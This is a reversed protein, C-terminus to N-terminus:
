PLIRQSPNNPRVQNGIKTIIETPTIIKTETGNLYLTYIEGLKISESAINIHRFTKISKHEFVINGSSDKLEILTGVPKAKELYISMGPVKSNNSLEKVMGSSGIAIIRGGNIIIERDADLAGNNDSTPGNIVIDGGNIYVWGNSDIGDGASDITVKGNNITLTGSSTNVGSEINIGDDTSTIDILGGNMTISESEMGEHSKTITIDGDDIVIEKNAHIADDFTSINYIGGSIGIFSDSHIADDISNISYSGGNLLVNKFAKIGKNQTTINFSGDKILVFGKNFEAENTSKIGDAGANIIFSGDLIYVSDKGRIGDDQSTIDFSGSKVKLDDKSVIGDQYNAIITLSGEGGFTTDSKSYIVGTVDSDFEESYSVGDELINNGITEIVLDNASKCIIAPGANNKISANDLILRINENSKAEINILGNELKGTVHYTGQTNINLNESLTIEYNPYKNWNIDLDGDDIDVTGITKNSTENYHEQNLMVTTLVVAVMVVFLVLWKSDFEFKM